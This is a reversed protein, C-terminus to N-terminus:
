QTNRRQENFERSSLHFQSDHGRGREIADVIEIM